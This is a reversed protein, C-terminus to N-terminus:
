WDVPLGCNQMSVFATKKRSTLHNGSDLYNQTYNIAVSNRYQGLLKADWEPVLIGDSSNSVAELFVADDGNSIKCCEPNKALFEEVSTENILNVEISPSFRHPQVTDTKWSLLETIAGRIIEEDSLWRKQEWCFGSYNLGARIGVIALLPLFILALLKIGM